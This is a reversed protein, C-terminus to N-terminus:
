HYPESVEDSEGSQRRAVKEVPSPKGATTGESVKMFGIAKDCCNERIVQLLFPIKRSNATAFEGIPSRELHCIFFVTPCRSITM